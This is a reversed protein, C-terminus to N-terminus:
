TVLKFIGWGVLGIVLVVLLGLFIMGLFIFRFAWRWVWEPGAWDSM